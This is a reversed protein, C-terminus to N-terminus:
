PLMCGGSISTPSGCYRFSDEMRGIMDYMEQLVKEISNIKKYDPKELSNPLETEQSYYREELLEINTRIREIEESYPFDAMMWDTKFNPNSIGYGYSLLKESLYKTDIEVRNIDDANWAGILGAAWETREEPALSDWGSGIIRKNLSQVRDVDAQTRWWIPPIWSGDVYTLAKYLGINGHDDHAEIEVDYSDKEEAETTAIYRTPEEEHYIVPEGDVYGVVKDIAM